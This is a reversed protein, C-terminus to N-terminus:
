RMIVVTPVPANDISRSYAAYNSPNTAHTFVDKIMHPRRLVKSLTILWLVISAWWAAVRVEEDRIKYVPSVLNYFFSECPQEIGRLKMEMITLSCTDDNLIWHLWLFPMMILHLVLLPEINTFPVIILWLVILIHLIRIFLAAPPM